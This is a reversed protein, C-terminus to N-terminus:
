QTLITQYASLTAQIENQLNPVTIILKRLMQKTYDTNQAEPSTNLLDEARVKMTNLKVPYTNLLNYDNSMQELFSIEVNPANKYQQIIYRSEPLKKRIVFILEDLIDFAENNWLYAPHNTELQPKKYALIDNLNQTPPIDPINKKEIKNSAEPTPVSTKFENKDILKKMRLAKDTFGVAEFFDLYNKAMIATEPEEAPYVDLVIKFQEGSIYFCEAYYSKKCNLKIILNNKQQNYDITSIIPNNADVILPLMSKQQSSNQLEIAIMPTDIDMVTKFWAKQDLVFVFRSVDPYDKYYSHIVKAANLYTFAILTLVVLLFKRKM